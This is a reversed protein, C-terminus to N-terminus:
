GEVGEAVRRPFDGVESAPILYKRGLRLSKIHNARLADYVASLGIAGHMARHFERPSLFPKIKEHLM